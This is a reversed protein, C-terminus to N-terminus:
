VSCWLMPMAFAWIVRALVCSALQLVRAVMCFVGSVVKFVFTIAYCRGLLWETVIAILQFMM